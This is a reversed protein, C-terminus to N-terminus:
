VHDQIAFAEMCDEIDFAEMCDESLDFEVDKQLLRSLSLAVKSIDKIFRRYFGAHGLFARVERVSYTYPLGSIVDVKAPDVSIGDNSVIHGSLRDLMQDIFPLPFHDKRTALNLRRYDIYVRWSNQVRTAILEGNENKITTVGSKKPVVQVPSVWESDLISYIIDAELLRTVEKKVVEVLDALSWGIARNNRRLINLLKEEQQPTLEKAIIVPLKQNEKLFAYKLHSPLPKLEVSQEHSPVQDDPLVPPPLTDKECEHPNGVSPGQIMSKGDLSDRHVEAVVNDIMDCQFISHDEPPHRMAEDLNFSVARGDIEFSYTGSFADLKFRSTKLFPRGHLISSTRGSDSPPMKLIHFDIPFVLGKISVLVDEVIGVVSIISKDALIFWTASRKFPPLKLVEYVSLTMISVCTGLDCMCDVFQVRDITCTVLYPGLDGCKDPIDGMLDSISSGLPITELDHIREKNMCLDKLFKAYKPVQRIADFFPITVEVKKFIEVMKPDLEVHKKTKRALTPFPILTAEQLVNGDKPVEGRQQDVEEEFVEQVEDEEEVEEVAVVDEDQTVEIPSPEELSREQLKAGSRLTIANIGGKPNPLSQSPLASSSSPQVNSTSTPEM